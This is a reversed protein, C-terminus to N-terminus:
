VPQSGAEVKLDRLPRELGNGYADHDWSLGAASVTTM